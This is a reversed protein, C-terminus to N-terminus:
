NAGIMARLRTAAWYANNAPIGQAILHPELSHFNWGDPFGMLRAMERMTLFRSYKYHVFKYDGIMAPAPRDPELFQPRYMHMQQFEKPCDPWYKWSKTELERQANKNGEQARRITNRYDNETWYRAKLRHWHERLLEHKREIKEGKEYWHQEVVHGRASVVPDPSPAVEELDEIWPKLKAHPHSEPLDRLDGLEPRVVSDLTAMLFMRRRIQPTGLQYSYFLWTWWTYGHADLVGTLDDLLIRCREVALQYANEMIISRPRGQVVMRIWQRMCTNTPSSIRMGTMSSLGGCPPNGYVLDVGGNCINRFATSTHDLDMVQVPMKPRNQNWTKANKAYGPTEWVQALQYGAAEIGLSFSGAGILYGIAIM